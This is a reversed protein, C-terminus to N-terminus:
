LENAVGRAACQGVNYEFDNEHHSGCFAHPAFLPGPGKAKHSSGGVQCKVTIDPGLKFSHLLERTRPWSELNPAKTYVM